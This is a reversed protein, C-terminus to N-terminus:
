LNHFSPRHHVHCIKLLYVYDWDLLHIRSNSVVTHVVHYPTLPNFTTGILLEGIVEWHWDIFFNQEIQQRKAM